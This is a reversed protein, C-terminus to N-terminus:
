GDLARVAAATAAALVLVVLFPARALRAIIAVVLLAALGAVLVPIGQPTFPAVALTLVVAPAAPAAADLGYIRPDGMADGIASKRASIPWSGFKVCPPAM